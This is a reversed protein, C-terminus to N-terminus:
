GRAFCNAARSVPRGSAVNGSFQGQDSSCSRSSSKQGASPGGTVCSNEPDGARPAAYTGGSIQFPRPRRHRPRALAGYEHPRHTPRVPRIGGMALRWRLTTREWRCRTRRRMAVVLSAVLAHGIM